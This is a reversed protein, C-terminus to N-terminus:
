ANTISWICQYISNKLTYTNKYGFENILISNDGVIIPPQNSPEDKFIILNEKGMQKGIELAFDKISIANGM